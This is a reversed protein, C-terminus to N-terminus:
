EKESLFLNSVHDSRYQKLATVSKDVHKKTVRLVASIFATIESDCEAADFFGTLPVPSAITFPAYAGGAIDLQIIRRFVSHLNQAISDPTGPQSSLVTRDYAATRDDFLKQALAPSTIRNGIMRASAPLFASDFVDIAERGASPLCLLRAIFCSFVAADAMTLKSNSLYKGGLVPIAEAASIAADALDEAAQRIQERSAAAEGKRYAVVTAALVALLALFLFIIAATQM